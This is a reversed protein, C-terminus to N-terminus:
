NIEAKLLVAVSRHGKIVALINGLMNITKLVQQLVIEVQELYSSIFVTSKGEPTQIVFGTETSLPVLFIVALLYDM